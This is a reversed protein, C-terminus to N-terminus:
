GAGLKTFTAWSSKDKPLNKGFIQFNRSKSSSLNVNRYGYHQFKAYYFLSQFRDVVCFEDLDSLPGAAIANGRFHHMNIELENMGENM